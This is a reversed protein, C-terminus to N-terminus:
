PWLKLLLRAGKVCIEAFVDLTARLLATTMTEAAAELELTCGCTSETAAWASAFAHAELKAAAEISSDAFSCASAKGASKCEGDLATVVKVWGAAIAKATATAEAEAAGASCLYVSADAAACCPM